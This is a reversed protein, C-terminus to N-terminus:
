QILKFFWKHIFKPLNLLTGGLEARGYALDLYIHAEKHFDHQGGMNVLGHNLRELVPNFLIYPPYQMALISMDHFLPLIDDGLFSVGYYEHKLPNYLRNRKFTLNYDKINKKFWDRVKGEYERQFRLTTGESDFFYHWLKDRKLITKHLDSLFELKRRLDLKKQNIRYTCLIM